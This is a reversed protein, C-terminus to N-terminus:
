LRGRRWGKTKQRGEKQEKNM